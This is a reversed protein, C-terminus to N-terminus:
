KFATQFNKLSVTLTVSKSVASVCLHIASGLFVLSWKTSTLIFFLDFYPSEGTLDMRTVSVVRDRRDKLTYHGEDTYNVNRIEIKTSHTQVRDFYDPLDQSVRAGDRVQPFCVGTLVNNLIVLQM